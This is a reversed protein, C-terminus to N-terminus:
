HCVVAAWNIGKLGMRGDLTETEYQRYAATNLMYAHWVILIDLPPTNGKNAENLRSWKLFRKAAATGYIRWAVGEALGKEKGWAAVEAEVRVIAELLELHVACESTSPLRDVGSQSAQTEFALSLSERLNTSQQLQAFTIAAMTSSDCNDFSTTSTSPLQFQQLLNCHSVLHLTSSAKSILATWLLSLAM